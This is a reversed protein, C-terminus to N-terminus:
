MTFINIPDGGVKFTVSPLSMMSLAGELSLQYTLELTLLPTHTVLTRFEVQTRRLHSDSFVLMDDSNQGDLRLGYCSPFVMNTLLILGNM